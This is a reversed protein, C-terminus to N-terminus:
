AAAVSTTPFTRGELLQTRIAEEIRMLAIEGERARAEAVKARSEIHATQDEASKVRSREILLSDEAERIRANAEAICEEAAKKEMELEIIRREALELKEIAKEAIGKARRETDNAHDEVSRLVEAARYILDLAKEGESSSALKNLSPLSRVNEAAAAPTTSSLQRELRTRLREFNDM